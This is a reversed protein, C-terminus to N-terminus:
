GGEGGGEWEWVCKRCEEGTQCVELLGVLVVAAAAAAGCISRSVIVRLSVDWLHAQLSRGWGSWASCCRERHSRLCALLWDGGTPPSQYGSVVQTLPGLLPPFFPSFEEGRECLLQFSTGAPYFTSTGSTPILASQDGM